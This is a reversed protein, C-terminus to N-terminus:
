LLIVKLKNLQVKFLFVRTPPNEETKLTRACAHSTQDSVLQFTIRFYLRLMSSLQDDEGLM